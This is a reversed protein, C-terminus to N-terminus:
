RIPLIDPRKYSRHPAPPSSCTATVAQLEERCIDIDRPADIGIRVKSGDVRVVTLRIDDGLLISEGPKRTLVLM